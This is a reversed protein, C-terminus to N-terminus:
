QAMTHLSFMCDPCSISPTRMSFGIDLRQIEPRWEPVVGFLACTDLVPNYWSGDNVTLYEMGANRQLYWNKERIGRVTELFNEEILTNAITNGRWYAEM